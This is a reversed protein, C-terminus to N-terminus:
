LTVVRGLQCLFPWLRRSEETCAVADPRLRRVKLPLPEGIKKMRSTFPNTNIGVMGAAGHSVLIAQLGGRFQRPTCKRLSTRRPFNMGASLFFTTFLGALPLEVQGVRHLRAHSQKSPPQIESERPLKTYTVDIMGPGRAATWIHV